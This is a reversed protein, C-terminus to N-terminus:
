FILCLVEGFIGPRDIKAKAGGKTGLKVATFYTLFVGSLPMRPVLFV